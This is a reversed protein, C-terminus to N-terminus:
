NDFKYSQDPCFNTIASAVVVIMLERNGVEAASQNVVDMLDYADAGERLYSCTTRGIEVLTPKDVYVPGYSQEIDYFYEDNISPASTTSSSSSTTTSRKPADTVTVYVTDGNCAPLLTGVVAGVIMLKKM